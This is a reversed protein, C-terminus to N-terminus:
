GGEQLFGLVVDLFVRPSTDMADHAQGALVELRAGPFAAAVAAAALRRPEPSAGGALLLVRVPLTPRAGPALLYDQTAEIERALTGALPRRDGFGGASRFAFVHERPIGAIETLFEGLAQDHRGDAVLKRLGAAAASFDRSGPVPVPPEYLVMRALAPARRAAEIACIAGYSHALMAVRGGSPEGIQGVQGVVAALDAAEDSLAYPEADGSAGRGRRDVAYVTFRRALRSGVLRWRRHDEGTGHVLVLPPGSGQRWCAIPTGDASRVM